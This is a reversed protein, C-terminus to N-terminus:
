LFLARNEGGLGLTYIQTQMPDPTLAFNGDTKAGGGEGETHIPSLHKNEYM